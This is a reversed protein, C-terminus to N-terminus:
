GLPLVVGDKQAVPMSVRQIEEDYIESRRTGQTTLRKHIACVLFLRVATRGEGCECFLFLVFTSQKVTERRLRDEGTPHLCSVSSAGLILVTNCKWRRFDSM